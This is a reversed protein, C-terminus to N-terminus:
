GMVRPAPHAELVDSVLRDASVGDAIAEYGLVLRHRLCQPAIAWLDEASVNPRGSM